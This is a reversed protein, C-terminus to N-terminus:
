FVSILGVGVWGLNLYAEIYGNHAETVSKPTGGGPGRFLRGCCTQALDSGIARSDPALSQTPYQPSCPLGFIREVRSPRVGVWANAVGTQGAFLVYPQRCPCAGSLANAGEITSAQHVPSEDRTDAGRRPYRLRDLNSFKGHALPRGWHLLVGQAILHRRRDTRGKDRVLTIIHWLTGLSIVLLVVGLTNKNTTVGTNEPQGIPSYARGLDSLVQYLAILDAVSHLRSALDPAQLRRPRQGDTVVILAMTLDSM